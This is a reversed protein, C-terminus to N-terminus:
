QLTAEPAIGVWTSNPLPSGPSHFSLSVCVCGCVASHGYRVSRLTKAENWWQGKQFHSDARHWQLSGNIIDACVSRYFPWPINWTVSMQGRFWKVNELMLSFIVSSITVQLGGCMRFCLHVCVCVCLCACVGLCSLLNFCDQVTDRNM